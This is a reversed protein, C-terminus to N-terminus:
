SHVETDSTEAAVELNESDFAGDALMECFEEYGMQGSAMMAKSAQQLEEKTWDKGM